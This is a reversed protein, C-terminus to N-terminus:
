FRVSIIGDQIVFVVDYNIFNNQTIAATTATATTDSSSHTIIGEIFTSLGSFNTGNIVTSGLKDYTELDFGILGKSILSAYPVLTAGTVDYQNVIYESRLISGEMLLSNLSHQSKQLETFAEAYNSIPKQPVKQGGCNIDLSMASTGYPFVRGFSDSGNTNPLHSASLFQKVSLSRHPVLQSTFGSTGTPYTSTYCNWSSAHVYLPSEGISEKIASMSEEDFTIQDCVIELNALTYSTVAQGNAFATDHARFAVNPLETYLDLRLDNSLAFMPLLNDCLLGVGLVIPICFDIQTTNTPFNRGFDAGNQVQIGTYLTNAAGTNGLAGATQNSAIYYSYDSGAWMPSLGLKDERTCQLDTLIHMLDNWNMTDELLTSDQGRVQIRNILSFANRNLYGRGATPGAIATISGKLYITAPDIATNRRAPLYFQILQNSTIAASPFQYPQISLRTRKAPFASPKLSFNASKPLAKHMPVDTISM